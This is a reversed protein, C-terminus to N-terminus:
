KKVGTFFTVIDSEVNTRGVMTIVTKGKDLRAADSNFKVCFGNDCYQIQATIACSSSITMNGGQVDLIGKGDADRYKCQSSSKVINGTSNVKIKCFDTEWFDGFFTDGTVGNLYWSRPM